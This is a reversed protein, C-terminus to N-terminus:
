KRRRTPFIGAEAIEREWDPCVLEAPSRRYWHQPFLRQYDRQAYRRDLLLIVGRDREGRIVRGAAQIVRRMGPYLYAYEFGRHDEREYYARLLENEASVQPLGVGVIVAAEALRGPLDIGEAFVGGMVSCLLAHRSGKFRELLERRRADSAGEEQVIVHRAQLRSVIQRMLEFSPFFALINRPVLRFFRDLREALAEVNASRERYLTTVSPDIFVRLREAPFPSPLALTDAGDLGLLRSYAEFPQLTASLGVAAHVAQFTERLYPAADLCLIELAPVPRRRLLHAFHPGELDAARVFDELLRQLELVPDGDSEQGAGALRYWYPVVAAEFDAGIRRWAEASLQIPI